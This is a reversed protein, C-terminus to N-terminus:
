NQLTPVFPLDSCIVFLLPHYSFHHYSLDGSRLNLVCYTCYVVCGESSWEFVGEEMFAKIVKYWNCTIKGM